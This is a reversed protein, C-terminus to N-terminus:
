AALRRSTPCLKGLVRRERETLNRVLRSETMPVLRLLKAARSHSWRWQCCLLDHVTMGGCSPDLIAEAISTRGARIERKIEARRLRIENARDLALM